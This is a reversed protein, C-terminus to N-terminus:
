PFPPGVILKQTHTTTISVRVFEQKIRPHHRHLHENSVRIARPYRNEIYKEMSRLGASPLTAASLINQLTVEHVACEGSRIKERRTLKFADLIREIDVLYSGELLMDAEDLVLHRVSKFIEPDLINPGKVFKALFAPTCIIIDPSNNDRYPWRDSVTTCAESRVVAGHNALADLLEQTMQQVQMCLEKNPVMIMVTPYCLSGGYENELCRQVLPVLYSFTKGSGTEAAIVVDEGSMISAMAKAQITTTLPKGCDELAKCIDERVGCERFTKPLSGFLYADRDASGEPVDEIVCGLDPSFGLDEGEAEIAKTIARVKISHVIRYGISQHRPWILARRLVPFSSAFASALLRRGLILMGVSLLLLIFNLRNLVM